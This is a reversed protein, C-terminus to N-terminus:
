AHVRERYRTVRMGTLMEVQDLLSQQEFEGWHAKIIQSPTPGPLSPYAFVGAVVAFAGCDREAPREEAAASIFEAKARL